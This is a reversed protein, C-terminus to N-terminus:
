DLMTLGSLAVYVDTSAPSLGETFSEVSVSANGSAPVFNLFTFAGGIIKDSKDRYIAVTQLDKLDKTFPSTVTATTKLGGFDQARTTVKSVKFNAPKKDELPESEGPIAQVSMKTVGKADSLYDGFAISTGPLAATVYEERTDVVTGNSDSFSIQVQANSAIAGGTNEIVVGFTVGPTGYEGGDLQTFGYEAIKLKADDSAPKEEAEANEATVDGSVVESKPEGDTSATDAASGCASTTTLIALAAIGASLTTTRRTTMTSVIVGLVM